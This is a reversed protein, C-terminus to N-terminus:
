QFKTLGISLAHNFTIKSQHYLNECKLHCSDNWPYLADIWPNILTEACCKVYCSSCHELIGLEDIVERRLRDKKEDKAKM